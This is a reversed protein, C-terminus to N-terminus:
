VLMTLSSLILRSHTLDPISNWSAGTDNSVWAYKNAPFGYNSIGGAFFYDLDTIKALCHGVAPWPLKPAHVVDAGGNGDFVIYETKSTTYDAFAVNRM